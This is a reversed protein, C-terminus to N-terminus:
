PGLSPALVVSEFPTEEDGAGLVEEKDEGGRDAALHHYGQPVVHVSLAVGANPAGVHSCVDGFQLQALVNDHAGRTAHM